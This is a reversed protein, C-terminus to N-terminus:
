YPSDATLLVPQQKLSRVNPQWCGHPLEGGDMIGSELSDTVKKQGGCAGPGCM